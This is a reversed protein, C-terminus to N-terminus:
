QVVVFDRDERLVEITQLVEKGAGVTVPDTFRMNDGDGTVQRINTEVEISVIHDSPTVNKNQRRGSYEHVSEESSSM